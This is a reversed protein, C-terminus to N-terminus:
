RIRAALASYEELDILTRNPQAQQWKDVFDTLPLGRYLGRGPGPAPRWIGILGVKGGPTLYREFDILQLTKDLKKKEANFVKASTTRILADGGSGVRWVGVYKRKGNEVYTELDALYAASAFRSRADNLGKWDLGLLLGGDGTAGPAKHRYVGLYRRQGGARFVEVDILDQNAKLQRWTEVFPTFPASHLAGNGSGVRWLAAYRRQGGRVYTEVDALYQHSGLEQWRGVLQDWTLDFFLAGTGPSEKDAWVGTYTPEHQGVAWAFYEYNANNRIAWGPKKDALLTARKAGYCKKKKKGEKCRRRDWVWKTGVRVYHVVEHVLTRAAESVRTEFSVFPNTASNWFSGCTVIVGVPAHYAAPPGSGGPNNGPCGDTHADKALRNGPPSGCRLKRIRKLGKGNGAFRGAVKGLAKHVFRLRDHNYRGFWRRGSPVATQGAVFDRDWLEREEPKAKADMYDVLRDARWAYYHGLRFAQRLFDKQSSSCSKFKPYSTSPMTPPYSPLSAHAVGVPIVLVISLVVVVGAIGRSHTHMHECIRGPMAFGSPLMRHM